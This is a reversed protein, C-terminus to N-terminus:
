QAAGDGACFPHLKSYQNARGAQKKIGRDLGKRLFIESKGFGLDTTINAGDRGRLLPPERDDRVNLRSATSVETARSSRVSASPSPTHDQRGSAPALNAHHKADRWHRPCFLGTGPSLVIYATLVMACPLGSSGAGGTTVVTHKRGICVPRPHASLVRDERRGRDQSPCFEHVGQARDADRSSCAREAKQFGNM